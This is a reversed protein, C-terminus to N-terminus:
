ATAPAPYWGEMAKKRQLTTLRVVFYAAAAAAVIELGDSLMLLPASDRLGASTDSGSTGTLRGILASALYLSWWLRVPWPKPRYRGGLSPFQTAADWMDTAVRSPMWLNGVPVFWAGVAWGAGNRFRDPALRGTSRRMMAFWVIFAIACPVFTVLYCLAAISYLDAASELDAGSGTTANLRIETFLSFLDCLAVAGLGTLAVAMPVLSAPKADTMLPAQGPKESALEAPVPQNWSYADPESSSM